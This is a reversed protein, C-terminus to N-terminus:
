LVVSAVTIAALGALAVAYSVNQIRQRRIDDVNTIMPVVGIPPMSIIAEVDTADRVTSDGAELLVVMGIASAAGLILGVFLIAPRNPASPAIPLYAPELITFRQAQNEIELTEGRTAEILKTTIDDYAATAAVQVRQLSVYEEEIAPMLALRRQYEENYNTLETIRFNLSQTEAKVSRLEATVRIRASSMPITELDRAAGNNSGQEMILLQRKLRAVEPHSEGYFARASKLENRVREAEVSDGVYMATDLGDGLALMASRLRKLEPHDPGFSASAVAFDRRLQALEDGANESLSLQQLESELNISRNKYNLLVRKAEALDRASREIAQINLLMFEPLSASHERRYEVLQQNAETVRALLQRQEAELFEKTETALSRRSRVNESLYLNALETVVQQALEPKRHAYTITFAITADFERGSKPNVVAASLPNISLDKRFSAVLLQESDIDKYVQYKQNIRKLSERTLVLQNLIQLQEDAYTNVTSRVLNEPIKQQEILISSSSEFYEPLTYAVVIASCVCVVLAAFAPRYRRKVAARYDNLTYNESNDM